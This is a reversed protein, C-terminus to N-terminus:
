CLLLLRQAGKRFLAVRVALLEVTQLSLPRAQAPTPALFFPHLFRVAYRTFSLVRARISIAHGDNGEFTILPPALSNQLTQGAAATGSGTTTDTGGDDGSLNGDGCEVAGAAGCLQSGACYTSGWCGRGDPCDAM